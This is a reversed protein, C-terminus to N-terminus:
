SRPLGTAHTQASRSKDTGRFFVLWRWIVCTGAILPRPPPTRVLPLDLCASLSVSIDRIRPVNGASDRLGVHAFGTFGAEM